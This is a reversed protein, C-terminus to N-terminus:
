ADFGIADEDDDSPIHLISDAASLLNVLTEDVDDAEPKSEIPVLAEPDWSGHCASTLFSAGVLDRAAAALILKQIHEGCCAHLCDTRRQMENTWPLVELKTGSGMVSFWGAHDASQSGCVECIDIEFSNV